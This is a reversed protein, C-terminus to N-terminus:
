RVRTEDHRPKQGPRWSGTAPRGRCNKQSSMADRFVTLVLGVQLTWAVDNLALKYVVIQGVEGGLGQFEKTPQLLDAKGIESARKAIAAQKQMWGEERSQRKGTVNSRARSTALDHVIANWQNESRVCGEVQAPSLIGESKRVMMGFSKIPALLASLRRLCAASGKASDQGFDFYAKGSSQAAALIAPLTQLSDAVAAESPEKLPGPEEPALLQMADDQAEIEAIDQRCALTDEARAVQESVNSHGGLAPAEDESNTDDAESDDALADGACAGIFQLGCSSWWSELLERSMAPTGDVVCSAHLSCAADLAHTAITSCTALDFGNHHPVQLQLAPVLPDFTLM